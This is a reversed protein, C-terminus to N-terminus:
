ELSPLRKEMAARQLSQGNQIITEREIVHMGVSLFPGIAALSAHTHLRTEGMICAKQEIKEFLKRFWGCGRAQPLIFGLDIYGGTEVTIFGIPSKANDAILVHKRALRAHWDPGVYPEARWAQREAESYPSPTAHIADFM